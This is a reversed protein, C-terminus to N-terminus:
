SNRGPGWVTSIDVHRWSIVTVLLFVHVTVAIVASMEQSVNCLLSHSNSIQNYGNTFLFTFVVHWAKWYVSRTTNMSVGRNMEGKREGKFLLSISFKWGGQQQKFTPM